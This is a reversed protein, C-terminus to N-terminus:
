AWAQQLEVEQARQQAVVSAVSTRGAEMGRSTPLVDGSLQLRGGPGLAARAIVDLAAGTAASRIETSSLAAATAAAAAAGAERELAREEAARVAEAMEEALVKALEAAREAAAEQQELKEQADRLAVSQQEVRKSV